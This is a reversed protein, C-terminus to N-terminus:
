SSRFRVLWEVRGAIAHSEDDRRATYISPQERPRTFELTPSSRMWLSNSQIDRLLALGFRLKFAWTALRQGVVWQVQDSHAQREDHVQIIICNIGPLHIRANPRKNEGFSIAKQLNLAVIQGKWREPM